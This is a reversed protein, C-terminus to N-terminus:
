VTERGKANWPSGTGSLRCKGRKGRKRSERILHESSCVDLSGGKEGGGKRYKKPDVVKRENPPSKQGKERAGRKREKGRLRFSGRSAPKPSQRAEARKEEERLDRGSEDDSNSKGKKRGAARYSKREGEIRRVLDAGGERDTPFQEKGVSILEKRGSKAGRRPYTGRKKRGKMPSLNEREKKCAM